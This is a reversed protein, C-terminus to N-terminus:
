NRTFELYTAQRGETEAWIQYGTRVWGEPPTQWDAKNKANWSFHPTILMQELMWTLYDVHDTALLLTSGKPMVRALSDLFPQQILRRKHHRSKPWPDPFLIYTKAISGEPLVELLQRADDPHIRVNETKHEDLAKLLNGLGNIYPECGIWGINPHALAQGALHEGGGFGIELRYEDYPKAFLSAPSVVGSKPLSIILAPLLTDM